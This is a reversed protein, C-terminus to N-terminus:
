RSACNPCFDQGKFSSGIVPQCKWGRERLWDTLDELRARMPTPDNSLKEFDFVQGCSDCTVREILIRM